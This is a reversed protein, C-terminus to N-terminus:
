VVEELRQAYSKSAKVSGENKLAFEIVKQAISIQASTVKKRGSMGEEWVKFARPLLKLLRRKTDIKSKGKGFEGM